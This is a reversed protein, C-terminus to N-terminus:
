FRTKYGIAIMHGMGEVGVPTGTPSFGGSNWSGDLTKSEIDRSQRIQYGLNWEGGWGIYSFGASFTSSAAGGLIPNVYVDSLTSQDQSFGARLTWSQNLTIDAGLSLGMSPRGSRLSNASPAFSLVSPTSITGSVNVLSPWDPISFNGFMRRVDLEMTFTTNPRFRIGWTLRSPLELSGTGPRSTTNATLTLGSAIGGVLPNGFGTNSYFLPAGSLTSSLPLSKQLGSQYAFGMSWRSNIAWRGGVQFVPSSISASQMLRQEFVGLSPNAASVPANPNSPIVGRLSLGGIYDTTLMGMGIGLSFEPHTSPSFAIQALTQRGVLSLRDGFFRTFSGSGFDLHRSFTSESHLGLSWSPNLKWALGFAPISRNRDSSYLTTQNSQLTQQTSQMELGLSIFVSRSDQLTTLLAPNFTSAELSRGYSVQAGSRAIGVPDSTLLWPSQACLVGSVFTFYFYKLHRQM